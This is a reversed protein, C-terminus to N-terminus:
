RGTLDVKTVPVEYHLKPFPLLGNALRFTGNMESLINDPINDKAEKPRGQRSM